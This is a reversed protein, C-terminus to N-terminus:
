SLADVDVDVDHEPIGVALGEEQGEKIIPGLSPNVIYGPVTMNFSRSSSWQTIRSWDACQHTTATAKPKLSGQKWNYTIIGVDGSGDPLAVADKLRGVAVLDQKSLRVNMVQTPNNRRLCVAWCASPHSFMSDFIDRWAKELVPRPEGVYDGQAGDDHVWEVVTWKLAENAPSYVLSSQLQKELKRNSEFLIASFAFLFFFATGTVIVIKVHERWFPLTKERYPSTSKELLTDTTEASETSSPLLSDDTSSRQKTYDM